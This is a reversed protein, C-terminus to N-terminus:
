PNQSIKVTEVQLLFWTCMMTDYCIDQLDAATQKLDQAQTLFTKVAELLFTLHTVRNDRSAIKRRAYSDSLFSANYCIENTHM